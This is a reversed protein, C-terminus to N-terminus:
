SNEKMKLIGKQINNIKISKNNIEPHFFIDDCYDMISLTVLKSTDRGFYKFLELEEKFLSSLYEFNVNEDLEWGNKNIQSIFIKSLEENNYGKIEFHWLFRSELGKQVKFLSEKIKNKYGAFIVIIEGHMDSMLKNIMNLAEYGFDDKSYNHLSYAEDIFLVGGKAKEFLEKVNSATHGQFKGIIQDRTAEIFISKQNNIKNSSLKEIDIIHENLEALCKIVNASNNEKPLSEILNGLAKNMKNAKKEIYSLTMENKDKIILDNVNNNTESNKFYGSASFIKGIIRSINTKCVGPPGTILTHLLTNENICGLKKNILIYKLQQLISYKINDLGVINKLETLAEKMLNENIFNYFSLQNIINEIYLDM